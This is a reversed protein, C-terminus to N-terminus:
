EIEIRGASNIKVKRQNSPDDPDSELALTVICEEDQWEKGNIFVFPDPPLFVVESPVSPAVNYIIVGKELKAERINESPSDKRKNGNCDAFIIYSDPYQVQHFYLGFSHTNCQTEGSGMAMEQVERFEQSLHYAARQLAMKKEAGQNGSILVASLIVIVTIVVALEIMTFGKNM